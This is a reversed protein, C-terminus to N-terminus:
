DAMFKMGVELAYYRPAGYASMIWLQGVSLSGTRYREDTLNSGM